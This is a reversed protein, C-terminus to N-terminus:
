KRNVVLGKEFGVSWDDNLIGGNGGEQLGGLYWWRIGLDESDFSSQDEGARIILVRNNYEM